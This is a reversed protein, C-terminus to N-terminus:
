QAIGYPNRDGDWIPNVDMYLTGDESEVCFREGTNVIEFHYYLFGDDLRAEVFRVFTGIPLTMAEGSGTDSEDLSVTEDLHFTNGKYQNAFRCEDRLDAM